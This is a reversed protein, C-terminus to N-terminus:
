VRLWSDRPRQNPGLLALQDLHRQDVVRDGIPDGRVPVADVQGVCLISDGADGLVGYHGALPVDVPEDGLVGAAVPVVRM